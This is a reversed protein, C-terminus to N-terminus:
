GGAIEDAAEKGSLITHDMNLYEWEGFRGKSIIDCSMLYENIVHINERHNLDYIIYAPDLTFVQSV